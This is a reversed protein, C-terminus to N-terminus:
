DTALKPKILFEKMRPGMVHSQEYAIVILTMGVNGAVIAVTNWNVNWKAKAKLGTLRELRNLMESFEKSSPDCRDMEALTRTIQADFISSKEKKLNFM